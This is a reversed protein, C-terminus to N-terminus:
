AIANKEYSFSRKTDRQEVHAPVFVVAELQVLAVGTAVVAAPLGRADSVVASHTTIESNATLPRVQVRM